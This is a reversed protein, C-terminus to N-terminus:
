NIVVALVADVVDQNKLRDQAVEMRQVATLRKLVLEQLEKQMSPYGDYGLEMAFRVVTSESVGVARGLRGATLFAAKEFTDLIYGAIARQGKTFSPAREKMRALIDKAM